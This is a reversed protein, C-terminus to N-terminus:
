NANLSPWRAAGNAWYLSSLARSAGGRFAWGTLCRKAVGIRAPELWSSPLEPAGDPAISASGAETPTSNM